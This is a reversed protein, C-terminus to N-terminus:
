PILSLLQIKLCRGPSDETCTLYLPHQALHKWVPWLVTSAAKTEVAISGPSLCPLRRPSALSGRVTAGLM